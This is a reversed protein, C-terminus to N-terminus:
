CPAQRAATPRSPKVAAQHEAPGQMRGSAAVGLRVTRALDDLGDDVGDIRNSAEAQQQEGLQQGGRDAAANVDGQREV